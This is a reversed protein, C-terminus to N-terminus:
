RFNGRRAFVREKFDGLTLQSAVIRKGITNNFGDMTYAVLLSDSTNSSPTPGPTHVAPSMVRSTQQQQQYPLNRPTMTPPPQSRRHHNLRRM